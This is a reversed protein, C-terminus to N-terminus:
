GPLTKNNATAVPSSALVNCKRMDYEGAISISIM